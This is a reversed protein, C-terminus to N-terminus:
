GLPQEGDARARADQVDGAVRVIGEALVADQILLKGEQGLGERGLCERPRHALHEVVSGRVLGGRRALLANSQQRGPRPPGRDLLGGCSLSAVHGRTRLAWKVGRETIEAAEAIRDALRAHAPDGALTEAGLGLGDHGSRAGVSRMGWAVAFGSCSRTATTVPPPRPMPRPMASLSARSPAWQAM